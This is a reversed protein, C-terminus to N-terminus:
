TWDLMGAASFMDGAEEYSAKALLCRLCLNPEALEGRALMHATGTGSIIPSGCSRCIPPMGSAPRKSITEATTDPTLLVSPLVPLAAPLLVFTRRNM